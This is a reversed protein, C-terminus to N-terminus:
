ITKTLKLITQKHKHKNQFKCVIKKNLKKPIKFMVLIKM